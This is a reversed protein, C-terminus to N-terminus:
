KNCCLCINDGYITVKQVYSDVCQSIHDTFFQLSIKKHCTHCQQTPEKSCNHSSNLHNQIMMYAPFMLNCNKCKEEHIITDHKRKMHDTLFTSM